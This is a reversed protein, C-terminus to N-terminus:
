EGIPPLARGLALRWTDIANQFISSLARQRGGVLTVVLQEVGGYKGEGYGLQGYGTQMAVTARDTTVQAPRPRRTPDLEVHKIADQLDHLLDMDECPAVRRNRCHQAQVYAQVGRPGQVHGPLWPPRAEAVADAFQHLESAAQRSALVVKQRAADLGAEGDGRKHAATLEEEAALYAVFAPALLHDLRDELTM